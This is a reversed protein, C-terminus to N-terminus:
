AGGLDGAFKGTLAIESEGIRKYMPVPISDLVIKTEGALKGTDSRLTQAPKKHLTLGSLLKAIQEPGPLDNRLETRSRVLL